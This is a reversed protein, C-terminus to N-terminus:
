GIKQLMITRHHNIIIIIIIIILARLEGCCKKGFEAAWNAFNQPLITWTGRSAV